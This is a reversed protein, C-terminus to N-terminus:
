RRRRNRPTLKLVARSVGRFAFAASIVSAAIIAVFVLLWNSRSHSVNWWVIMFLVACVFVAIDRWNGEYSTAAARLQRSKKSAALLDDIRDNISRRLAERRAVQDEPIKKLLELDEKIATRVDPPRLQGAAVGLLAGGFIPGAALVISALGAM